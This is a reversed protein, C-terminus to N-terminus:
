NEDYLRWSLFITNQLVCWQGGVQLPVQGGYMTGSQSRPPEGGCMVVSHFKHQGVRELMGM